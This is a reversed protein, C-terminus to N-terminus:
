EEGKKPSKEEMKEKIKKPHNKKWMKKSGKQTIKRHGVQEQMLPTMAHVLQWGYSFDSLIQLQPPSPQGIHAIHSWLLSFSGSGPHRGAGTDAEGDWATRLTDRGSVSDGAGVFIKM